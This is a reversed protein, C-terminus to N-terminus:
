LLSVLEAFLMYMVQVEDFTVPDTFVGIQDAHDITSNSGLHWYMGRVGAAGNATLAAAFDGNIVPGAVPGDMSATNVVGDNPAFGASTITPPAGAPIAMGGGMAYASFQMLPLVDPRPVQSGPLPLQSFYGMAQLHRRAVRTIWALTARAFANFVEHLPFLAFFENVDETTLTREPFPVTACFSMTFYYIDPSPLPAFTDLDQVGRISNDYLGNCRSTWWHKIITPAIRARM